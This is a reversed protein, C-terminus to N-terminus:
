RGAPDGPLHSYLQMDHWGDDHLNAGRRVGEEVFGAHVAVRRSAENRTSHELQVRHLGIAHAWGTAAICARTAIGRGRSRPLVWYGVEGHGDELAMSISVRGAVKMGDRDVIAWSARQERLWDQACGDIWAVAEAVNDFRRFHWHQIDPDSFAEIVAPADAREWPRLLLDDDVVIIPQPQTGVTAAHVVPAILKGM